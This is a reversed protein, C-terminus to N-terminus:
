GIGRDALQRAAAADARRRQGETRIPPQEGGIAASRPTIRDFFRMCAAWSTQPGGPARFAELHVRVGDVVRGHKWWRWVSIPSVNKGKRTSKLRAAIASFPEAGEGILRAAVSDASAPAAPPSAATPAARRSTRATTSSRVM